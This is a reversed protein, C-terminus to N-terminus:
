FSTFSLSGAKNVEACNYFIKSWLILPEMFYNRNKAECLYNRDQKLTQQQLTKNFKKKIKGRKVSLQKRGM